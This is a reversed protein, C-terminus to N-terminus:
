DHIPFKKPETVPKIKLVNSIVRVMSHAVLNTSQKVFLFEIEEIDKILTQCDAILMVFPSNVLHPDQLANFIIQADIEVVM